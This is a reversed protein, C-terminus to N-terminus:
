IGLGLGDWDEGKWIVLFVNNVNQIEFVSVRSFLRREGASPNLHPSCALSDGEGKGRGDLSLSPM